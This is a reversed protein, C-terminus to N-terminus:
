KLIEAFTVFGPQYVVSNKKRVNFLAPVVALNFANHLGSVQKGQLPIVHDVHWAFGTVQERLQKLHAAEDSVLQDLEADWSVVRIRRAAKKKADYAARKLPNADAWRKSAQYPREPYKARYAQAAKAAIERKREPNAKAWALAQAVYQERNAEYRARGAKKNCARCYYRLGGPGKAYNGFDVLPKHEECRYCRRVESM